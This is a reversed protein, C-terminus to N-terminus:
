ATEPIGYVPRPMSKEKLSVKELASLQNRSDEELLNYRDVSIAIPSPLEKTANELRAAINVADGIVTYELREESGINGSVVSGYHIGIGNRLPTLGRGVLEENLTVLGDRIGLATQLASECPNSSRDLGYVAMAADGIFKDVM